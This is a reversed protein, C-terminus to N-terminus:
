PRRRASEHNYFPYLFHGLLHLLLPLTLFLDVLELPSSPFRQLLDQPVVIVVAEELAIVVLLLLISSLLNSKSSRSISLIM